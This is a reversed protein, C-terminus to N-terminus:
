HLMRGTMGSNCVYSLLVRTKYLGEKQGDGKSEKQKKTCLNGM